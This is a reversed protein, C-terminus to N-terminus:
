EGVGKDESTLANRTQRRPRGHIHLDADCQFSHIAVETFKGDLGDVNQPGLEYGLMALRRQVGALRTVPELTARSSVNYETGFITLKASTGQPMNIEVKGNSDTLGNIVAGGDLELTYSQNAIGIPTGNVTETGPYVQFYLEIRTLVVTAPSVTGPASSPVVAAVRGTAPSEVPASEEASDADDDGSGGNPPDGDTRARADHDDDSM